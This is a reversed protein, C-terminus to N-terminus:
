QELVMVMGDERPMEYFNKRIGCNQFGMSEYLHIANENSIRVELIVRCIGKEKAQNLLYNLLMRGIGQNHRSPAVAVNTIEGEPLSCYMGSYGLITNNELVVVFLTDQELAQQFAQESWPRSFLQQELCAADSIDGAKMQRFQFQHEGM